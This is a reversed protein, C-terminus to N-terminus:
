LKKIEYIRTIVVLIIIISIIFLFFLSGLLVSYMRYKKKYDPEVPMEYVIHKKKKEPKFEETTEEFQIDMLKKACDFEKKAKKINFEQDQHLSKLKFLFIVLNDVNIQAFRIDVKDILYIEGEKERCNSKFDQFIKSALEILSITELIIIKLQYIDFRYFMYNEHLDITKKLLKNNSDNIEVPIKNLDFICIYVSHQEEVIKFTSEIDRISNKIDGLKNISSHFEKGRIFIQEDASLDKMCNCYQMFIDLFYNKLAKISEMSEEVTIVESKKKIHSEYYKIETLINFFEKQLFEGKNRIQKINNLFIDQIKEYEFAKTKVYNITEVLENYKGHLLKLFNNDSSKKIKLTMLTKNYNEKHKFYSDINKQFKEDILLFNQILQLFGKIAEDVKKKEKSALAKFFYLDKIKEPSKLFISSDCFEITSQLRQMEIKKQAKKLSLRFFLLNFFNKYFTYIIDSTKYFFYNIQKGIEIVTNNIIENQSSYILKIFHYCMLKFKYENYLQCSIINIETIRKQIELEDVVIDCVMNFIQLKRKEQNSVFEKFVFPEYLFNKNKLKKITKFDEQIIKKRISEEHLIKNTYKYILNICDKIKVHLLNSKIVIRNENLNIELLLNESLIYKFLNIFSIKDKLYELYLSENCQQQEIINEENKIFNCYNSYEQIFCNEAETQLKKTNKYMIFSTQINLKTKKYYFSRNLNKNSAMNILEIQSHLINYLKESTENTIKELIGLTFRLNYAMELVKASKEKNTKILNSIINEQILIEEKIVKNKLDEDLADKSLRLKEYIENAKLLKSILFDKSLNIYNEFNLLTRLYTLHYGLEIKKNKYNYFIYIYQDALEKAIKCNESKISGSPDIQKILEVYKERFYIYNQEIKSFLVFKEKLRLCVNKFSSNIAQNFHELFKKFEDTFNTNKLSFHCSATQKFNTFDSFDLQSYKEDFYRCYINKDQTIIRHVCKYIYFNDLIVIENKSKINDSNNKLLLIIFPLFNNPLKVIEDTTEPTFIIDLSNLENKTYFDELFYDFLQNNNHPDTHTDNESENREESASVINETTFVYQIIRLFLFTKEFYSYINIVCILLNNQKIKKIM